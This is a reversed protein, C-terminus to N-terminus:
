RNRLGGCMAIAMWKEAVIQAPRLVCAAIPHQIAKYRMVIPHQIAKYRMVFAYSTQPPAALLRVQAIM